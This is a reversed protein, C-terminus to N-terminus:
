ADYFRTRTSYLVDWTTNYTGGNQGVWFFIQIVNETWDSTNGNNTAAFLSPGVGLKILDIYEDFQMCASQDISVPNSIVGATFTLSPTMWHKMRLVKFRKRYDLNPFITGAVPTTRGSATYNSFVQSLSPLTGSNPQRDLVIAMTLQEIPEVGTLSPNTPQFWGKVHYSVLQIVRGIRNISDTGQIIGMTLGTPTLGSSPLPLAINTEDSDFQKLEPKM